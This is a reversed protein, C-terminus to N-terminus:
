FVRKRIAIISGLIILISTITTIKLGLDFSEPWYYFIVEHEGAPVKVARFIYNAPSITIEKEDVKAKWGEDYQDALILIEPKETETRIKVINPTYSLITANGKGSTTAINLDKELLTTTKPDFKPNTMIINEVEAKSALKFSHAFYVRELANPNELIVASKDQFVRKYGAEKFRYDILDGPINGNKDRGIAIFYKVNAIDIFPSKYNTLEAYESTGDSLLNGGNIHNIFRGSKQSHLVDYGEISQLKYTAWTNPPLVEGHERGIRFYGPQKQLFALAPTQPFIFKESIFPNFKLFYRSLDFTLIIFLAACIISLRYKKIPSFNIKTVMIYLFLFISIEIFPILTHRLAGAFNSLQYEPDKLYINSYFKTQPLLFIKNIIKYSQWTGLLIGVLIAWSWIVCKLFNNQKETSLKIQNLAFASLISIAFTTVFLMRSAYSQTLFPNKSSYILYSLPNNFCLIISGILLLFFFYIIRTKRLFLTAFIIIPLTLSGVFGNTDFYSSFGWYNRTVPNGFFDAVFFKLFDKTPLLGFNLQKIYSNDTSRISKQVLEFSLFLQPASLAISLTVALLIPLINIVSKLIGGRWLRIIAFLMVITFSYLSVQPNGSLIILTLVLVLILLYRVKDTSAYREILFLSIPLYAIGHGATGLEVWTTMLGGLAFILSGTLRALKSPLWLSLLLYMGSAALLTQSFIFLGWGFYKPLLLLFNLPYLVSSQYNALLPTGTFSYPNWLPWQLNKIQDIAMYKWIFLLSFVDSLFPNQVPFHYYDFWPSYSVILLDGPFPIKGMLFFKYFIGCVIGALILYPFTPSNLFKTFLEITKKM